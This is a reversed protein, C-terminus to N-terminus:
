LWATNFNFDGTVKEQWNAQTLDYYDACDRVRPLFVVKSAYLRTLGSRKDARVLFEEERSDGIKGDVPIAARTVLLAPRGYRYIEIPLPSKAALAEIASKELELDAQIRQVGLNALEQVAISNAVPLPFSTVIVAEPYPRLLEFGYLSTVRFRRIGSDWASQIMKRLSPLREEPCFDPLIAEDTEKSFDLISVARLAKPNGPINGHPRIAVTEPTRTDPDAPRQALYDRRFQEMARLEPSDVADPPLQETIHQWFARRLSKLESAPVFYNGDIDIQCIGCRFPARDSAQWEAAVTEALLPRKEAPAPSWSQRWVPFTPANVVRVSVADGTLTLQLQLRPVEPGLVDLRAQSVELNTGLKFVLGGPPMPKDCCVFCYEGPSAKQAPRDNVFIRTLTLAAGEDGSAPQVRLRDGIHIRRKATFGFGNPALREVRGVLMGVAGLSDHQILERMAEPDAFGRTWRRGCTEALLQRAEGLVSKAEQPSPADLLLRYARVANYVYDPQRLRGEIKFSALGMATLEPIMELSCLDGTSFFFGNGGKSYFRRRCPQKCKGRNGSAGGLWSSFLCQGSLSCCLAGHVFVELEIGANRALLRLEDTTMQRELIVRKVGLSRALEIGASNHFGMQTSAHITLNPFYERILRLVGLDQVILADPELRSLEALYAVVEPLEDEKVLTNMTVYVKRGNAHAYRIIRGLEEVSFNEGRERANFKPLGAYVADAGADFAALAAVANGAPALLEPKLSM